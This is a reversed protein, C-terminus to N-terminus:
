SIRFFRKIYGMSTKTHELGLAHGIVFFAILAVALSIGSIFLLDITNTTHVLHGMIYIGVYAVFGMIISAALIRPIFNSLQSDFEKLSVQSKNLFWRLAFFMLLADFTCAIMFGWSIGSLGYAKGLVYALVADLVISVMNVTVPILTNQRSYFSRSLLPSLSQPIVSFSLIGFTTFLAVIEPWTAKGHDYGIRVLLSGYIVMLVTIPIIFFLVLIFSKALASVYAEDNKTVYHESLLPFTATAISVAFIGIPSAQLNIALNFTAVSGSALISGVTTGIILSIQSIDMGLIRPFFLKAIKKVAENNFDFVPKWRFGESFVAPAQVLLHMLAGLIVGLGLGYLGLHPYFFFLGILIGINYLIPAISLILFKKYSSLISTFFNSITFIIPSLMFLRMLGITNSLQQGTFGPVLLKTLVPAFIFLVVCIVLMGCLSINIVSSAIENAKNKDKHIWETFVPILSVSLTGLVLLGFIFDPVRFAAYYADLTSGIGIRSTLLPDRVFGFLKSIM